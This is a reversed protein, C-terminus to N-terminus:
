CATDTYLNAESTGWNITTGTITGKGYKSGYKICVSEMEYADGAKLTIKINYEGDTAGTTSVVGKYTYDDNDLTKVMLKAAQLDEYTKSVIKAAETKMANKRSDDLTTGITRAAVVMLLALIVIVALLEVLTFGKKNLKKM